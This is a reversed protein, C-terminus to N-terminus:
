DGARNSCAGTHLYLDRYTCDTAFTDCMCFCRLADPGCLKLSEPGSVWSRTVGRRRRMVRLQTEPGTDRLSYPGTMHSAKAVSQTTQELYRVHFACTMVVSKCCVVTQQLLMACPRGMCNSLCQDQSGVVPWAGFAPLSGYNPRRVLTEWVTHALRGAISKCTRYKQLLSYRCYM